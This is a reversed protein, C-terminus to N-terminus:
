NPPLCREGNRVSGLEPFLNKITTSDWAWRSRDEMAKIEASNCTTKNNKTSPIEGLAKLTQFVTVTLGTGLVPNAARLFLNRNPMMACVELVLVESDSAPPNLSVHCSGTEFFLGFFGFRFLFWVCVFLFLSSPWTNTTYM